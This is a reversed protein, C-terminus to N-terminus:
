TFRLDIIGEFRQLQKRLLFFFFFQGFNRRYAFTPQYDDDGAYRKRM